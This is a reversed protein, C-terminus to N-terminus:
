PSWAPTTRGRALARLLDGRRRAVFFEVGFIGAGGLDDVVKRAMAQAAALARRRM